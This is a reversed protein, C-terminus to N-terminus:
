LTFVIAYKYVLNYIPSKNLTALFLHLIGYIYRFYIVMVSVGIRLVIFIDLPNDIIDTMVESLYGDVCFYVSICVNIFCHKQDYNSVLTWFAM